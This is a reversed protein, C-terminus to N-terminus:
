ILKAILLPCYWYINRNTTVTILKTTHEGRTTSRPTLMRSASSSSYIRSIRRTGSTRRRLSNRPRSRPKQTVSRSTIASPHVWRKTTSWVRTDTRCTGAQRSVSTTVSLARSQRRRDIQADSHSSSMRCHFRTAVARWPRCASRCEHMTARETFMTKHHPWMEMSLQETILCNSIEFTTLRRILSPDTCRGLHAYRPPARRPRSTLGAMRSTTAQFDAHLHSQAASRM